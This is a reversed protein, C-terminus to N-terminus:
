KLLEYKFLKTEICQSYYDQLRKKLSQLHGNLNPYHFVKNGRDDFDYTNLQVDIQYTGYKIDNCYNSTKKAYDLVKNWVSLIEKDTHNLNMKDLTRSALTNIDLCLENPYTKGNSAKITMCKNAYTLCVYILCSKLLEKDCKYLEGKDSSTFYVEKHQWEKQPYLKACFLPLKDLFNDSRLYFGFSQEIAVNYPLRTLYRHKSDTTFGNVAMYAIINSNEKAYKNEKHWGTKEEGDSSCVIESKKDDSFVRKDNLESIGNYVKKIIIDGIYQSKNDIIDYAELPYEEREYCDINSWLVCSIASPSAHFHKRNFLFGRLFVKNVLGIHKFYKVPSFVIYSDTPQRLYYQFASWIFLNSIERAAGRKERLSSLAKNIFEVKVYDDKRSVKARSGDEKIFESSSSDQYPPNEFLIVTCKPNDIYGKIYENEIFSQSLANSNNIFGARYEILNETPPIITRVKDGLRECLVKYEYYEYTSLICHSLEDDTLVSQLNGTGACRDVIIYDNGIPVRNIAERVLEAAKKCYEIPTYFAGLEQKRLNDNLMDMLYKFKENTKGTYPLILGRFAKPERIEGVIKVVGTDNDGIFDGKSASPYERYYRTAWGVICDENIRIPLYEKNKLIQQLAIVDVENYLNFCNIYDGCIFNDNDRSAAGFYVKHIDEFYDKSHYYYVKQTNLSVLLINAPVSEGKIRM